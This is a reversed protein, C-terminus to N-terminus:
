VPELELKLRIFRLLDKVSLIGVLRDGETVLLRSVGRRQMQELADLADTNPSVRLGDIDADMVEAVTHQGWEERPFRSLSETSILGAIHGNSSVPFAKRHHRYVYDDVWTSLDLNPPVVVPEPNM